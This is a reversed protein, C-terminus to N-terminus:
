VAQNAQIILLPPDFPELHGTESYLTGVAYLAFDEPHRNLMNKDDDRKVEEVFMREAFGMTPFFMPNAFENLKADKVCCIIMTSM